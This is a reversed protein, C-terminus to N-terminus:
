TVRTLLAAIREVTAEKAKKALVLSGFFWFGYLSCNLELLKLSSIQKSSDVTCLNDQRRPAISM